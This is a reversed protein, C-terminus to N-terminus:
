VDDVGDWLNEIKGFRVCLRDIMGDLARKGRKGNNAKRFEDIMKEIQPYNQFTSAATDRYGIECTAYCYYILKIMDTKLNITDLNPWADEAIQVMLTLKTTQQDTDYEECELENWTWFLMIRVDGNTAGAGAHIIGGNIIYHTGIPADIISYTKWDLDNGTHQNRQKEEGIRFLEGYGDRISIAARSEISLNCITELLKKCPVLRDCGETTSTGIELLKSVAVLTDIKSSAVPKCILTTCAGHSMVMGFQKSNSGMTDIHFTQQTNDKHFILAPTAITGKSYINAGMAEQTRATAYKLIDDMKKNDFGYTTCLDHWCNSGAQPTAKNEFNLRIEYRNAQILTAGWDIPPPKSIRNTIKVWNNTLLLQLEYMHRHITNDTSPLYFRASSDGLPDYINYFRRQEYKIKKGKGRQIKNIPWEVEKANKSDYVRIATKLNTTVSQLEKYKSRSKVFTELYECTQMHDSVTSFSHISGCICAVANMEPHMRLHLNGANFFYQPEVLLNDYEESEYVIQKINEYEAKTKNQVTQKNMNSKMKKKSIEVAESRSTKRFSDDGGVIGRCEVLHRSAMQGSQKKFVKSCHCTLFMRDLPLCYPVTLEKETVPHRLKYTFSQKGKLMKRVGDDGLMPVRFFSTNIKGHRKEKNSDGIDDM